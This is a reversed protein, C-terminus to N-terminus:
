ADVISEAFWQELVEVRDHSELWAKVETDTMPIIREGGWKERGNSEAYESMPGGAGHLFWSGKSTRYLKEYVHKFDGDHLGNGWKAVNEATDTDYRKGDIIKKM